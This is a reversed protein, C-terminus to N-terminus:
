SSTEDNWSVVTPRRVNGTAADRRQFESGDSMWDDWDAPKGGVNLFMGKKVIRGWCLETVRSRRRPSRLLEAIFIRVSV